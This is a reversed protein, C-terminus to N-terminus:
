KMDAEWISGQEPLFRYVDTIKSKPFALVAGFQSIILSKEIKVDYGQKVTFTASEPIRYYIGHKKNKSAMQAEIYSKLIISKMNRQITLVVTDGEYGEAPLIGKAKDFKFLVAMDNTAQGDPTYYFTYVEPVTLTTGTFLELYEQEEKDLENIMLQLTNKEYATEAEGSILSFKYNRLKFITESAEKAKEDNSKQKLSKNFRKKEVLVSDVMVKEIVTDIDVKLSSTVFTKSFAEIESETYNHYDRVPKQKKDLAINQNISSIIGATNVQINYNNKNTCKPMEIYYYNEPDPIVTTTMEINSIENTITDNKIVEAINLYKEAFQAYPGKAYHVKNVTVEIKLMTKPLAYYFGRGQAVDSKENIHYVNVFKSNCSFMFVLSIFIIKKM